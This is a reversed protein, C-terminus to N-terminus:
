IKQLTYKSDYQIIIAADCEDAIAFTEAGLVSRVVRRSKIYAYDILNSNMDKDVNIGLPFDQPYTSTSFINLLCVWIFRVQFLGFM